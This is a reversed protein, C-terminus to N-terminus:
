EASQTPPLADSRAPVATEHLCPLRPQASSQRRRWRSRRQRAAPVTDTEGSSGAAVATPPASTPSFRADDFFAHTTQASAPRLLLRIRASHAGRARSRRGHGAAPLRGARREGHGVFRCRQDGRRRRRESPVLLRAPDARRRRRHEDGLRHRPLVRGPTVQVSQYVWKTSSQTPLSNCASSATQGTPPRSPSAEAWRTGATRRATRARRKSAGTSWRLSRTQSTQGM